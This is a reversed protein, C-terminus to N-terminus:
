LPVVPRLGLVNAHCQHRRSYCRDASELVFYERDLAEPFPAGNSLDAGILIRTRASSVRVHANFGIDGSGTTRLGEGDGRPLTRYSWNPGILDYGM